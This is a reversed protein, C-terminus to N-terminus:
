PAVYCDCQADDSQSFPGLDVWESTVGNDGDGSSGANTNPNEDVWVGNSAEWYKSATLQDVDAHYQDAYFRLGAGKCSPVTTSQEESYTKKKSGTLEGNVAVTIKADAIIKTLIGAKLNTTVTLAVKWAQTTEVADTFKVNLVPARKNWYNKTLVLQHLTPTVVSHIPAVYNDVCTFTVGAPLAQVTGGGQLPAGVPWSSCNYALSPMSLGLVVAGGFLLNGMRLCMM